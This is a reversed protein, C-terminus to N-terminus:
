PKVWVLPERSKPLISLLNIVSSAVLLMLIIGDDEEDFDM